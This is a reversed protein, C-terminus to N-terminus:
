QEHQSKRINGQGDEQSCAGEMVDMHLRKSVVSWRSLNGGAPTRNFRKKIDKLFSHM